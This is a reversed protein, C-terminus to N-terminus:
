LVQDLMRQPTLRETALRFPSAATTVSGQWNSALVGLDNVDVDSDFDFNGQGWRRPLLQWNSAVIGLDGVGVQRDLDADGDITFRVLVCTGDIPQTAFLTPSGLDSAEAFGLSRNPTTAAVSSNIGGGDRGDWTGGNRGTIVMSQIADIPSAGTYDVILANDALDLEASGSMSVSTLRLVNNGNALLRLQGSAITLSGGISSSQAVSLNGGSVTLNENCVLSRITWAGAGVVITPNSAVSITVDDNPGPLNNGSWNLPDGWSTGDGGGDWTVPVVVNQLNLTINGAAAYYGDVAIRYTTGGIATFNVSSTVGGSDDNAAVQTLSSVTPGTYVALLTDFSSGATTITASGNNPATWYWWVSRGGPNGVHNPEGAEKTAFLNSGTIGVLSNGSITGANAFADNAPAVVSVFNLSINGSSASYGDVAIRYTTGSVANITVQSTVGSFDDNAAVQTLSSVASGTYVALLTDFNSGVTNIGVIGSTPATWRWWVSRGGTIGAHNPEGAEKSANQNSGTATPNGGTLVTAQAFMDNAPPVIPALSLSIDGTDGGYGDVAIRYTTGSAATFNVQSTGGTGSDDNAAVQTLSSVTAGTYVALVTDFNSGATSIGVPGNSAATWQWWVSAGGSNGAHNPEGPEKDAEENTGTVNASAGPIVTATAFSNNAPVERLVIPMTASQGVTYGAGSSLTLQVTELGEALGDTLGTVNISASTAGVPITFSTDSLTYDDGLTASGSVTFPVNLATSTDGFRYVVFTANNGIEALSSDGAGFVVTPATASVLSITNFANLRGSSATIGTMSSIRDAGGFIADRVTQYSAGPQVSFALAAVGSVHPTAMSTGSKTGYSNNPTTSLTSVGPAGLDVSTVGYNSFSARADEDDTAAVSILNPLDYSSPYHVSKDTNQNDNGSAAIFLMGAEGSAQIADALAQSFGGGGWSNSTVRVNVGRNRMMTAYNVADIADSTSGGGPGLFRIAMIRANWNVGAVGSGNNGVGAITGSVHTGHSDSDMPNPDDSFFDWGYVDDTFGNGDNDVGDGPTEGPNTWMNAALDPHTYDVGTDIVGVVVSGNGTALDWAEPADIDADPTGGTQGTNHLGWLEGFRSDNPVQTPYLKFNPEVYRFGPLTSLAANLRHFAVDRPARIVSVGRVDLKEDLSLTLGQRNGANRVRSGLNSLDGTTSLIWEGPVVTAKEGRWSITLENKAQVQWDAVASALLTRGELAEGICFNSSKKNARNSM